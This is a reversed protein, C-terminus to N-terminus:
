ERGVGAAREHRVNQPLSVNMFFTVLAIGLYLASANTGIALLGHEPTAELLRHQQPPTQIWTAGGWLGVVAGIGYAML